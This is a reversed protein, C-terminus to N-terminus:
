SGRKRKSKITKKPKVSTLSKHLDEIKQWEPNTVPRQSRGRKIIQGKDDRLYKEPGRPAMKDTNYGFKTAELITNQLETDDVYKSKTKFNELNKKISYLQGNIVVGVDGDKTIQVPYKKTGKTEINVNDKGEINGGAGEDVKVEEKIEIPKINNAELYKLFEDKYGADSMISKQIAVVKEGKDLQQIHKTQMQKTGVVDRIFNEYADNVENGNYSKGNIKSKIDLVNFPLHILAKIDKKDDLWGTNDLNVTRKEIEQTTLKHIDDRSLNTVESVRQNPYLAAFEEVSYSGLINNFTTKYIDLFARGETTIETMKGDKFKFFGGGDAGVLNAAIMVQVGDDKLAKDDKYEISTKRKSFADDFKPKIPKTYKPVEDWNMKDTVTEKKDTDTELIEDKKTILNSVKAEANLADSIASENVETSQGLVKKVLFNNDKAKKLESEWASMIKKQEDNYKVDLADPDASQMEYKFPNEMTKVKQALANAAQLRYNESYGGWNKDTLSLYKNAYAVTDVKSGDKKSLENLQKFESNLADISKKKENEKYYSAIELDYRKNKRNIINDREATLKENRLVFDEKQYQKSKDYAGQFISGAATFWDM